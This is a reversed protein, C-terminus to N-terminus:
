LSFYCTFLSHLTGPAFDVETSLEIFFVPGYSFTYRCFILYSISMLKVIVPLICPVRLWQEDSPLILLPHM